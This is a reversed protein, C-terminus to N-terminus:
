QGIDIYICVDCVYMCVCEYQIRAWIFMPSQTNNRVSLQAPRCCPIENLHAGLVQDRLCITRGRLATRAVVM